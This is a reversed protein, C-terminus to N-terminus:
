IVGGSLALRIKTELRTGIMNHFADQFAGEFSIFSSGKVTSLRAGKKGKRHYGVQYSFIDGAPVIWGDAGPLEKGTFKRLDHAWGKKGWIKQALAM